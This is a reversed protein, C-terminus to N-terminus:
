IRIDWKLIKKGRIFDFGQNPEMVNSRNTIEMMSLTCLTNYFCNRFDPKMQEWSDFSEQQSDTYNFSNQKLSCVKQCTSKRRDWHQQLNRRLPRDTTKPEGKLTSVKPPQFGGPVKVIVIM